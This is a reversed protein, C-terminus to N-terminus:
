PRGGDSAEMFTERLKDTICAEFTTEIHAHATDVWQPAMDFSLASAATTICDLDLVISRRGDERTPASALTLMLVGNDDPQSLEVRLLLSTIEDHVGPPLKPGVLLYDSIAKHNDPLEIHNIYRLGVRTLSVPQAVRRYAALTDFIMQQFVGWHPYPQLHNISLLGPGVQILAREDNRLFQMRPAASAVRQSIQSSEAQVEWEIGQVQRKRPFQQRVEQYMLGPVTMDWDREAFQFECLAEVIPPSQYIRSM